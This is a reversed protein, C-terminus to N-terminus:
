DGTAILTLHFMLTKGTVLDFAQLGGAQEHNKNGLWVGESILHDDLIDRYGAPSTEGIVKWDDTSISAFVDVTHEAM